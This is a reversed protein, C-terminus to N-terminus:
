SSVKESEIRQTLSTEAQSLVSDIATQDVQDIAQDIAYLYSHGCIAVRQIASLLPLRGALNDGQWTLDLPVQLMLDGAISELAKDQEAMKQSDRPTAITLRGSGYGLVPILPSHISEAIGHLALRETCAMWYGTAPNHRWSRHVMELLLADGLSIEEIDALMDPACKLEGSWWDAVQIKANEEELSLVEYAIFHERSQATFCSSPFSTNTVPTFAGRVLIGRDDSLHGLMMEQTAGPDGGEWLGVPLPHALFTRYFAHRDVSLTRIIHSDASPPRQVNVWANIATKLKVQPIDPWAPQRFEGPLTKECLEQLFAGKQAKHHLGPIIGAREFAVQYGRWVATLIAKKVDPDLAVGSMAETQWGLDMAVASPRVTFTYEDLLLNRTIDPVDLSDIDRASLNTLYIIDPSLDSPLAINRGSPHLPDVIVCNKLDFFWALGFRTESSM